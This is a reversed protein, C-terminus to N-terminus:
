GNSILRRLESTNRLALLVPRALRCSRRIFFPNRRNIFDTDNARMESHRGFWVLELWLLVVGAHVDAHYRWRGKDALYRCRRLINVSSL